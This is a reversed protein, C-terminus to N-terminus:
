ILQALAYPYRQCGNGYLVTGSYLIVCACHMDVYLIISFVWIGVGERAGVKTAQTLIIALLLSPTSKIYAARPVAIGTKMLTTQTAAASRACMSGNIPAVDRNCDVVCCQWMAHSRTVDRHWASRTVSRAGMPWQSMRHIPKKPNYQYPGMNAQYIYIYIYSNLLSMYECTRTRLHKHTVVCELRANRAITTKSNHPHVQCQQIRAHTHTHTHTNYFCTV